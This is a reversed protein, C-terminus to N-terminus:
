IHCAYRWRGLGGPESSEAVITGAEATVPQRAGGKKEGVDIDVTDRSMKMDAIALHAFSVNLFSIGEFDPLVSGANEQYISFRAFATGDM